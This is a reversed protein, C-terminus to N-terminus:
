GLSMIYVKLCAFGTPSKTLCSPLLRKGIEVRATVNGLSQPAYLRSRHYISDHRRASDRSRRNRSMM